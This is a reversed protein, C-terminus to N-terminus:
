VHLAQEIEFKRVGAERIITVGEPGVEVVTSEIGLGPSGEFVYDVLNTLSGDLQASAKPPPQGHINASTGVIPLGVSRIVGRLIDHNPVRFSARRRENLFIPLVCNPKVEVVITLSGPWFRSILAKAQEPLNQAFQELIEPDALLLPLPQNLERRKIEYVRGVARESDHRCGLGFVTDTPFVAIGGTLLTKKLIEVNSGIQM